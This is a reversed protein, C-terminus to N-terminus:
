IKFKIVAKKVQDYGCHNKVSHADNPFAIMFHNADIRCIASGEGVGMAAEGAPDYAQTITIQDLTAVHVHEANTLTIHIDGYERHMEFDNVKGPILTNDFIIVYNVDDINTKGLPLAHLDVHQLYRIVVDLNKNMGIYQTINNLSDFIM